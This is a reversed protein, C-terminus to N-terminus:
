YLLMIINRTVAVIHQPLFMITKTVYPFSDTRNVRVPELQFSCITEKVLAAADDEITGDQAPLIDCPRSLHRRKTFHSTLAQTIPRWGSAALEAAVSELLVASFQM